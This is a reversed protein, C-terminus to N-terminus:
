NRFYVLHQIIYLIDKEFTIAPSWEKEYSHNQIHIIKNYKSPDDKTELLKWIPPKFPYDSPYVIEFKVNEKKILFSKIHSVLEKPLELYLNLILILNVNIKSKYLSTFHFTKADMREISFESDEIQFYEAIKVNKTTNVFETYLNNLRNM